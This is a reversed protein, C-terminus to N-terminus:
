RCPMSAASFPSSSCISARRALKVLPQLLQQRCEHHQGRVRQQRQGGRFLSRDPIGDDHDGRHARLPGLSRGEALQTTIMSGAGIGVTFTAIFINAVTEDALLVDKTFVPFQALIAAGLFWFWSAGIVAWFVDKREAAYCMLKMTQRPANWDFVMEPNGSTAPMRCAAYLAILSLAVITASLVMRGGDHLVLFGGFMTGLLITVFTGLELLANGAM